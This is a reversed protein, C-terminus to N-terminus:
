KKTGLPPWIACVPGLFHRVGFNHFICWNQNLLAYSTIHVSLVWLTMNNSLKYEMSTMYALLFYLTRILMSGTPEMTYTIYPTVDFFHVGYLKKTFSSCIFIFVSRSPHLSSREYFSIIIIQHSVKNPNSCVPHDFVTFYNWFKESMILWVKKRINVTSFDIAYLFHISKGLYPLDTLLYAMWFNQLM